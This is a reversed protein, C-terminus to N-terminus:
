LRWGMSLGKLPGCAELFFRVWEEPDVSRFEGISLGVTKGKTGM